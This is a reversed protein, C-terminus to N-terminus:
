QSTATGTRLSDARAAFVKTIAARASEEKDPFMHGYVDLTTKASAHRMCRQVVKVDLGESILVSAYYHRLDHFRFGKPLGEVKERAELFADGLRADSIPRGYAGLVFYSGGYENPVRNLEVLLDQSVPIPNKSEETKLEVGPYQEQPHIVSKLFDVHQVQLAVVEALRLGAFAALLIAPRMTFPMADHLEWIQATSAVYPRQKGVSPATRKSVPSRAVIGDLVADSYLQKLRSHLAYVTSQALGAESLRVTWAKVESARVESLRRDGFADRIHKLHSRAQKVTSPRNQEYGRMWTDAWEGVTLRQNKPDVYSGTVVSATVEDLWRQADVKRAFHRSHEKNAADRYRARWKGNPRKQISAM